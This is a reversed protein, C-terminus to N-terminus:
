QKGQVNPVIWPDVLVQLPHDPLLHFTLFRRLMDAIHNDLLLLSPLLLLVLQQEHLFSNFELHHLLQFSLVLDFLDLEVEALVLVHGHCSNESVTGFHRADPLPLHERSGPQFRTEEPVQM